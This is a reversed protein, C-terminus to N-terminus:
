ASRGRRQLGRGRAIRHGCRRAGDLEARRVREGQAVAGLEYAARVPGGSIRHAAGATDPHRIRRRGWALGHCRLQFRQVRSGQALSLLSARFRAAAGCRTRARSARRAGSRASGARRRGTAPNELQAVRKELTDIRTLLREILERTAPDTTQAGALSPLALFLCMLSERVRM